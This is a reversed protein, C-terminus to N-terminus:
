RTFQVDFGLENLQRHLLIGYGREIQEYQHLLIQRNDLYPQHNVHYLALLLIAAGSRIDHAYFHEENIKRPSKGLQELANYSIQNGNTILEYGLKTFERCQSNRIDYIRDTLEFSVERAIFLATLIPSIDTPLGDPYIDCILQHKDKAQHLFTRTGDILATTQNDNMTISLISKLYETICRDYEFNSIFLKLRFMAALSCITFLYNQDIPLHKIILQTSKSSMSYKPFLITRKSENVIISRTQRALEMVIQVSLELTVSTLLCEVNSPLVCCCLIAHITVGVSAVGSKTRCDFQFEEDKEM